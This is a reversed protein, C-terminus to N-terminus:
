GGPGLDPYGSPGPDLNLPRVQVEVQFGDNFTGRLLFNRSTGVLFEEGRGEAVARITGYQEPVQPACCMSSRPLTGGEPRLSPDQTHEHTHTQTHTQM